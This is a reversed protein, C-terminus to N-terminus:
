EAEKAATVIADHDFENAAANFEDTFLEDPTVDVTLLGAARDYDIHRQWTQADQAGWAHDVPFDSVRMQELSSNLVAVQKDMEADEDQGPLPGREPYAEWFLRVAAEPNEHLFVTSKAVGRSVAEIVEPNQEIYETTAGLGIGYYDNQWDAEPLLTFDYGANRYSTWLGPWALVADVQGSDLAEMSTAGYGTVVISVDDLRLGVEALRTQLYANYLSSQATVGITAGKLASFDTIPSGNSVALTYISKPVLNHFMKIPLPDSEYAIVLNDPSQMAIQATGGMLAQGTTTSSGTTEITVDLCEADFYGLQEALIGYPAYSVDLDATGMMLTVPTTTPCDTAPAAAGDAEEGGCATLLLGLTSLAAALALPRRAHTM